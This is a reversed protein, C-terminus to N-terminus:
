KNIINALEKQADEKKCFCKEFINNNVMRIFICYKEEEDSKCYTRHQDSYGYDHLIISSINESSIWKNKKFEFLM